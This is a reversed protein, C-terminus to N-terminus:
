ALTRARVRTAVGSVDFGPQELEPPGAGRGVDLPDDAAPAPAITALLQALGGRAVLGPAEGDSV